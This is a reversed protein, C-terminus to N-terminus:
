WWDEFFFNLKKTEKMKLGLKPCGLDKVHTQGLNDTAM